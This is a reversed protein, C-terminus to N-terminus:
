NRQQKTAKQKPALAKQKEERWREIEAWEEPDGDVCEMSAYDNELRWAKKLFDQHDSEALVEDAKTFCKQAILRKEKVAPSNEANLIKHFKEGDGGYMRKGAKEWRHAYKARAAEYHYHLDEETSNPPEQLPAAPPPPDTRDLMELHYNLRKQAMHPLAMVENFKQFVSFLAFWVLLKRERVIEDRGQLEAQKYMQMRQQMVSLNMKGIEQILRAAKTQRLLTAHERRQIDETAYRKQIMMERGDNYAEVLDTLDVLVMNRISATAKWAWLGVQGAAHQVFRSKVQQVPDRTLCYIAGNNIVECVVTEEDTPTYVVKDNEVLASRQGVIANNVYLTLTPGAARVRVQYWRLAQVGLSALPTIADKRPGRLEARQEAHNLCLAYFAQADHFRFVLGINSQRYGEVIKIHAELDFNTFKQAPIVSYFFRGEGSLTGVDGNCVWTSNTITSWSSDIALEQAHLGDKRAAERMDPIPDDSEESVDSEESSDDGGGEEALRSTKKTVLRMGFAREEHSDLRASLDGTSNLDPQVYMREETYLAADTEAQSMFASWAPREREDAVDEESDV